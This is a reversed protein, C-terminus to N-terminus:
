SVLWCSWPYRSCSQCNSAISRNCHSRRPAGLVHEPGPLHLYNWVIDRQFRSELLEVIFLPTQSSITVYRSQISQLVQWGAELIPENWSHINSHLTNRLLESLLTLVFVVKQSSLRHVLRNQLFISTKLPKGLPHRIHIRLASTAIALSIVGPSHNCMSLGFPHVPHTTISKYANCAAALM